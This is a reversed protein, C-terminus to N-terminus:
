FVLFIRYGYSSYTRSRACLLYSWGTFDELDWVSNTTETKLNFITGNVVLTGLGFRSAKSFPIGKRANPKHIEFGIKDPGFRGAFSLDTLVEEQVQKGKVIVPWSAYAASELTVSALKGKRQDPGLDSDTLYSQRRLVLFNKGKNFQGAGLKGSVTADNFSEKPIKVVDEKATVDAFYNITRTGMFDSLLGVSVKTNESGPPNTFAIILDESLDITPMVSQGNVNLIEIEPVPNVLFEAEDGNAAQISIRRPSYSPMPFVKIFTGLGVSKLPEGDCTIKGQLDVMAIGSLKTFTLAVAHDGEITGPPYFKTESAETRMDFLGSIVSANVEVGSLGEAKQTMLKGTMTSFREGLTKKKKNEDQATCPLLTLFLLFISLHNPQFPKIKM